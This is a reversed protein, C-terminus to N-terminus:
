SGTVRAMPQSNQLDFMKLYKEGFSNIAYAFFFGSLIDISYHAHAFYLSVIIATLCFFLLYKYWKNKAMLLFLFADGVHGSPYVGLEFKSFGNVLANSGTFLPPNGLPTLVIFIGRIIGMIGIMLLFFPIRNYDKKHIVYILFVIFSIISFIDYFLSVNYFPLDDLILDPLMPLIKGSNVYNYLYTQSIFNLEIGAILAILGIYFYRSRFVLMLSQNIVKLKSLINGGSIKFTVERSQKDATM